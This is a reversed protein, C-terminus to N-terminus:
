VSNKQSRLSKVMQLTMLCEVNLTISFGKSKHLLIIIAIVIQFNPKGLGRM